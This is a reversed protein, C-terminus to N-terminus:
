ATAASPARRARRWRVARALGYCVATLYVWNVVGAVWLGLAALRYGPGLVTVVALFARGGPTPPVYPNLGNLYWLLAGATALTLGLAVGAAKALTRGSNGNGGNM